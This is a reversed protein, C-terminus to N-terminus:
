RLLQSHRERIAEVGTHMERQIAQLLRTEQALAEGPAGDRQLRRAVRGVAVQGRVGGHHQRLGGSQVRAFERVSQRGFQASDFADPRRLHGPRAEEVKPQLIPDPGVFQREDVPLTLLIATRRRALSTRDIDLVDGGIRRARHMHAMASAGDRSVRQRVQESERTVLHHAFIIHVVRPRLDVCQGARHVAPVLFGQAPREARRGVPEVRALVQDGHTQLQCM